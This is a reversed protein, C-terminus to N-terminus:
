EDRPRPARGAAGFRFHVGHSAVAKSRKVCAVRGPCTTLDHLSAGRTPPVIPTHTHAAATHSLLLRFFFSEWLEYGRRVTPTKSQNESLM